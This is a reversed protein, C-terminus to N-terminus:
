GLLSPLIITKDSHVPKNHFINSARKSISLIPIYSLEFIACRSILSRARLVFKALFLGSRTARRRTAELQLADCDGGKRTVLVAVIMRM